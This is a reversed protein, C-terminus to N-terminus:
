GGLGGLRDALRGAHPGPRHDQPGTGNTPAGNLHGSKAYPSWRTALGGAIATRAETEWEHFDTLRDGTLLAARPAIFAEVDMAEAAEGTRKVIVAGPLFLARLGEIDPARGGRNDFAAFFAGIVGDIAQQDSM